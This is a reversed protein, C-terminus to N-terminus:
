THLYMYISFSYFFTLPYVLLFDTLSSGSQLFASICVGTQLDPQEDGEKDHLEQKFGRASVGSSVLVLQFGLNGTNKQLTLSLPFFSNWLIAFFFFFFFEKVLLTLRVM